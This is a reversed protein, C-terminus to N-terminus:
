VSKNVNANDLFQQCQSCLLVARSCFDCRLQHVLRAEKKRDYPGHASATVSFAPSLEIVKEHAEHLHLTVLNLHAFIAIDISGTKEGLESLPFPCLPNLCDRGEFQIRLGWKAANQHGGCVGDPVRMKHTKQRVLVFVHQCDAVGTDARAGAQKHKRIQHHLCGRKRLCM